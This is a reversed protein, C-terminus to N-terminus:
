AMIGKVHFSYGVQKTPFNTSARRSANLYPLFAEVFFSRLLQDVEPTGIISVLQLVSEDPFNRMTKSLQFSGTPLPWLLGQDSCTMKCELFDLPQSTESPLVRSCTKSSSECDWVWPSTSSVFELIGLLILLVKMIISKESFSHKKNNILQRKQVKNLVVNAKIEYSYM